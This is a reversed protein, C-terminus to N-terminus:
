HCNMWRPQLGRPNRASKILLLSLIIGGIGAIIDKMEVSHIDKNKSDYIEKLAMFIITIGNCFKECIDFIILVIILSLYSHLLKDSPINALLNIIKEIM